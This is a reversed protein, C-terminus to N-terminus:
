ALVQRISAALESAQKACAATVEDRWSDVSAAVDSDFSYMIGRSSSAFAGHGDSNSGMVIGEVGAGQAGVGPMLFLAHPAIERVRRAVEPYTAGVVLGVRSFGSSGVNSEGWEASLASMREYLLTTSDDVTLDQLEGSTPNSTKALVFVGATASADLFPQVGDRGLYGNITIADGRAPNARELFPHKDALWANGYASATHGIDNRKGDFIVPVGVSRAYAITELLASYGALGYQEYFAAQPKYAVAYPKTGNILAKNFDVISTTVVGPDESGLIADRLCKPFKGLDPDLGVVVRSDIANAREVMWDAFHRAPAVAAEIANM